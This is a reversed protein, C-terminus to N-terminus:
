DRRKRSSRRGKPAEEEEEDEEEDEDDEGFDDDSEEGDGFEDEEEDEEEEDEDWKMTEDEELDEEEGGEFEPLDAFEEDDNKARSAADSDTDLEYGDPVYDLIASIEAFFHVAKGEFYEANQRERIAEELEDTTFTEEFEIQDNLLKVRARTIQDLFDAYPGKEEDLIDPLAFLREEGELFSERVRILRVKQEPLEKDIALAFFAQEIIEPDFGYERLQECSEIIHAIQSPDIISLGDVDWHVDDSIETVWWNYDEGLRVVCWELQPSKKAMFLLTKLYISYSYHYAGTHM